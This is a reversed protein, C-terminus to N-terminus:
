RTQLYGLTETIQRQLISDDTFEALHGLLRFSRSPYNAGPAINDPRAFAIRIITLVNRIEGESLANIGILNTILDATEDGRGGRSTQLGFTGTYPQQGTIVDQLIRMQYVDQTEQGMSRGPVLRGDPTRFSDSDSPTSFVQRGEATECTLMMHRGSSAASGQGGPLCPASVSFEVAPSALKNGVTWVEHWGGFDSKDFQGATSWRGTSDTSGIIPGWDTRGDMTTRVSVPQNPAGTVLVEFRDGVQFASGGPHSANVLRVLPHQAAAPIVVMLLALLIRM